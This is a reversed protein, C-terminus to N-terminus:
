RPGWVITEDWNGHRGRHDKPLSCVVRPYGECVSGCRSLRETM